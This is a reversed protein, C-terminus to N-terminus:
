ALREEMRPACHVRGISGECMCHGREPIGKEEAEPLRNPYGTPNPGSRKLQHNEFKSQPVAWVSSLDLEVRLIPVCKNPKLFM